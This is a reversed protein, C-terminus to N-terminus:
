SAQRMFAAFPAYSRDRDGHIEAIRALLREVGGNKLREFNALAPDGDPDVGSAAFPDSAFVTGGKHLGEPILQIFPDPARRLLGVMRYAGSADGSLDPHFTAMVPPDPLEKKLRQALAASFREFTTPPPRICPYVLHIVQSRAARVAAIAVELDPEPRADLIACFNGFGTDVDRLFPCLRNAAVVEAAYRRHVRHVERAFAPADAHSRLPGCLLPSLEDM